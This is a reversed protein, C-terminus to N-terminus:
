GRLRRLVCPPLFLIWFFVFFLFLSIKKFALLRYLAEKYNSKSVSDAVHKAAILSLYRIVSKDNKILAKREGFYILPYPITNRRTGRSDDDLQYVISCVRDEFVVPGEFALMMWVYLDEGAVVGEPFGGIKTISEKRVCIKSSKAVSGRSSSKFFNDVYGRYGEQCGHRPKVAVGNERVVEHALCYLSGEPYDAILSKMTLLFNPKWEDDADLFCVYECSSAELGRNRAASVGSNPQRLIKINVHNHDEKVKTAIALSDDISGDDIVIVEYPPLLQSAVSELCRAIMYGKNYLPIVVSFSEGLNSAM